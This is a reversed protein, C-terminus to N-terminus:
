SWAPPSKESPTLPGATLDTGRHIGEGNPPLPIEITCVVGSREFKLDVDGQIEAALGGILRSGFGRRRRPRVPPGGIERWEIALLPAKPPETLSWAIAVHGTDNSLAGYKAANTALEHFAMLLSVAYKPGVRIDDGELRFRMREPNAHPKLVSEAIARLSAGDWNSETLLNHASALATVRAEFDVRFQASSNAHRLTQNAIALVIALTNRVRHNLEDMLLRQRTEARRREAIEKQASEYLRANDIAIAAQAAIATVVREARETFVAPQEHGFFLGGIVTGSRSIVPVAMYSVVPLHGKPMGFHPDNKGYRPDNRIDASRVIGEGLFTPAFVQTARPMPFQSFAEPPVGSITYLMYSGGRDDSVNYFFAGFQAGSLATAADTVSQVVRQLDLEGALMTGVRNLTELTASDERLRLETSKRGTIDFTVGVIRPSRGPEDGFRQGRVRLWHTEGDPWNVRIETDIPEGSSLAADLTREFRDRDESDVADLLTAYTMAQGAPLGFNRDHMASSSLRRDNDLEWYGLRGAQLASDLRAEAPFNEHM